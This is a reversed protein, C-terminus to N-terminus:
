VSRGFDDSPSRVPSPPFAVVAPHSPADRWVRQQIEYRLGNEQPAYVHEMWCAIARRKQDRVDVILLGGYLTPANDLEPVLAGLQPSPVLVEVTTPPAHAQLDVILPWVDVRTDGVRASVACRTPKAGVNRVDVTFRLPSGDRPRIEDIRLEPRARTTFSRAVRLLGFLSAFPNM